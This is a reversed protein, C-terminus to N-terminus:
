FTLSISLTWIENEFRRKAAFETVYKAQFSLNAGFLRGDSFAMIPGAAALRAQLSDAELAVRTAEAGLGNDAALQQDSYGTLGFGWGSRIRQM